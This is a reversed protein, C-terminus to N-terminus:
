SLLSSTNAPVEPLVILKKNKWDLNLAYLTYQSKLLYILSNQCIDQILISFDWFIQRLILFWMQMTRECANDAIYVKCIYKHTSIYVYVFLYWKNELATVNSNSDHSKLFHPYINVSTLHGADSCVAVFPPALIWM